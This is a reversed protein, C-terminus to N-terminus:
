GSDSSADALKQALGSNRQIPTKIAAELVKTSALLSVQQRARTIGTYLLERSLIAVTKDPLIILVHDFESGQSKHITMAYASSHAPLRLPSVGRIEGSQGTFCVQVEGEQNCKAIGVDGNFLGLEPNNEHIMIPRGHYWPGQKSIGEMLHNEILTNVAQVGFPGERLACLVRFREFHMFLQEVPAEARLAQLYTELYTPLQRMLYATIGSVPPQSVHIEGAIGTTLVNMAAAWEGQNVAHALQGIDSGSAFRHSEKLLVVSDATRAAVASEAPRTAITEGTAETLQRRFHETYHDAGLCIDRMVSGAEVSSLQDKDGLLILRAHQPLAKVLRTMMSLDIMSAEDVILVDLPLPNNKHYRFQHTHLRSGLLRHLTEAQEPIHARLTDSVPLSVKAKQISEIMRAAAKGTPAALRIRLPRDSQQMLLALIRVVTTTKGTGPGGSIIALRRMAAVAAAVKQWDCEIRKATPPFLTDLQQKLRNINIAEVPQARELLDGALQAEYQWYRHLFVNGSATLILPTFLGPAGVVPSSHLAQFWSEYVPAPVATGMLFKGALQHLDICTHGEATAKSVLCATLVSESQNESLRAILRAFHMDLDSILQQQHWQEVTAMM